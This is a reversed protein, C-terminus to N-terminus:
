RFQRLRLTGLPPDKFLATRDEVTYRIVSSEDSYFNAASRVGISKLIM